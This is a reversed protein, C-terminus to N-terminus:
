LVVTNGPQCAVYILIGISINHPENRVWIQLFVATGPILM